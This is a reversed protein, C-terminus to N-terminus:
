IRAGKVLGALARRERLEDLLKDMQDHAEAISDDKVVGYGRIAEPIRAVQV